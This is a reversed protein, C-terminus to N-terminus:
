DRGDTLLNPNDHINGIVKMDLFDLSLLFGNDSGFFKFAGYSADYKVVHPKSVFSFDREVVVDGEYVDKGDDDKFGTFQGITDPVVDAVLELCPADLELIAITDTGSHILDGYVWKGDQTKGRFKIERM